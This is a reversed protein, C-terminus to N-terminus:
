RGHVRSRGSPEPPQRQGTAAADASARAWDIDRGDELRELLRRCLEPWVGAAWWEQLRRLCTVGSVGIMGWSLREWAIGSRLVFVVGSLCARDDRRPRGGRLPMSRRPLIPEVESWLDDGIIPMSTTFGDRQNLCPFVAAPPNGDNPPGSDPASTGVARGLAAQAKSAVEDVTRPEVDLPAALTSLDIGLAAALRWATGLRPEIDRQELARITCLAVGSAASLAPQTLRAAWRLQKLRESFTM